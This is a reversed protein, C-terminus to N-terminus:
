NAIKGKQLLYEWVVPVLFGYSSLQWIRSYKHNYFPLIAFSHFFLGTGLKGTTPANRFLTNILASKGVNPIGVIMLLLTPEKALKERLYEHAVDLMQVNVFLILVDPQLFNILLWTETFDHIGHVVSASTEVSKGEKRVQKSACECFCPATWLRSFTFGM